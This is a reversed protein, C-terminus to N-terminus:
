RNIRVTDLTTCHPGGLLYRAYPLSVTEVTYNMDRFKKILKTQDQDLVIVGPEITLINM